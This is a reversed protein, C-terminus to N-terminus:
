ERAPQQGSKGIANTSSVTKKWQINKGAKNFILQGYLQPDIEPSEIRNWQDIYKNKHWYWVIRIVVAKYYLKVDPIMIGGTKNKKKLIKKAILPTKQNWLFKLITQELETFFAPLFKM